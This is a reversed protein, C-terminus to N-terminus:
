DLIKSNLDHREQLLERWNGGGSLIRCTNKSAAYGSMSLITRDPPEHELAIAASGLFDPKSGM